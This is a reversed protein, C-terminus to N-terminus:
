IVAEIVEGEYKKISDLLLKVMSRTERLESLLSFLKKHAEENLFEEKLIKKYQKKIQDCRNAVNVIINCCKNKLVKNIKTKNMKYTRESITDIGLLIPSEKDYDLSLDLFLSDFEEARYAKGLKNLECKISDIARDVDNTGLNKVIELLMTNNKVAKSSQANALNIIATILIVLSIITKKM